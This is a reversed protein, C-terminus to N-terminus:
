ADIKVNQIYTHGHSSIKLSSSRVVSYTAASRCTFLRWITTTADYTLQNSRVEQLPELFFDDQPVVVQFIGSMAM